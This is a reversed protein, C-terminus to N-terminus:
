GKVVGYLDEDMCDHPCEPIFAETMTIGSDDLAELLNQVILPTAM